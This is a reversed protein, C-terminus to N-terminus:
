KHEVYKKDATGNYKYIVNIENARYCSCSDISYMVCGVYMVDM